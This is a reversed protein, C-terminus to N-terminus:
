QIIKISLIIIFILIFIVHHNPIVEPGDADTNKFHIKYAVEKLFDISFSDWSELAQSTCIKWLARISEPSMLYIVDSIIKLIAVKTTEHSVQLWFSICM